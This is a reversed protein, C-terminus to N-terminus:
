EDELAPMFYAPEYDPCNIADLSLASTPHIPCKLYHSNTFFQCHACPIQHMKKASTLADRILSWVSWAILGVFLWAVGFCIPILM